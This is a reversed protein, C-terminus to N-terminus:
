SYPTAVLVPDKSSAHIQIGCIHDLSQEVAELDAILEAELFFALHDSQLPIEPHPTV